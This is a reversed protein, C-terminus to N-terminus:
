GSITLKIIARPRTCLNLPNSQAEIEYGKNMKLAEGKAYYPLGITNVTEVYNAPAYRSLFLGPVGVPVAYACDDTIKVASTGRYREFVFGNYNIELRPDRRLDAAMMTNLVTEKADKDELLAKWFGLSCFVRVGSFPVGDLADEIKELVIEAKERAKSSASSSLAMGQTQQAVGFTTFLSTANGNVDYYSGMMAAIRHAEITYDLNRRLTSLRENIRTQLVEAQNESGFARVGQVEDAMITARQPLHPIRFSHLKRSEGGAPKGDAGRPAIDVLSLVGDREEIAADLTSIGQEEFLGLEGLRGPAYKLNNMAATLSTLSFANPTFPDVMPM